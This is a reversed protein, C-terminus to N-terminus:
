SVARRETLPPRRAGPRVMGKVRYAHGFDFTLRNTAFIGGASSGM